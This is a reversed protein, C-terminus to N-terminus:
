TSSRMKPQRRASRTIRRRSLAPLFPLNLFRSRVSPNGVIDGYWLYVPIALIKLISSRNQLVAIEGDNANTRASGIHPGSVFQVRFETSRALGKIENARGVPISGTNEGHFPSIRM